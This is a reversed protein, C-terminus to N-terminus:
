VFMICIHMDQTETLLYLVDKLKMSATIIERRAKEHAISFPIM